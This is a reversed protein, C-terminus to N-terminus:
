RLQKGAELLDPTSFGETFTAHVARLRELWDRRDAESAIRCLRVAARLQSM